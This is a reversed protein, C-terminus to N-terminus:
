SKNISTTILEEHLKKMRSIAPHNKGLTKELLRLSTDISVEEVGFILNDAHAVIKEELTVPLFDRNPLGLEQAEDAPIGAGIHREIINALEQPLGRDKILEAGVVGHSVGHTKSRGIDHLLSGIEVLELNINFGREQLKRAIAMAKNTVAKCHEIVNKSCGSQELILLAEKRSPLDM